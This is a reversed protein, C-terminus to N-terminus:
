LLTNSKNSQKETITCQMLLSAEMRARFNHTKVVVVSGLAFIQPWYFANLGGGWPLRSQHGNQPPPITTISRNNLTRGM